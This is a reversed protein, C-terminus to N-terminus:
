RNAFYNINCTLHAPGRYKGTPHDHDRVKYLSNTEITMFLEKNGIHCINDSDHRRRDERTMVMRENPQMEEICENAINYLKNVMGALCNACRFDYLKNWVSDVSCVFLILM